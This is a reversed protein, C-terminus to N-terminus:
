HLARATAVERWDLRGDLIDLLVWAANVRSADSQADDRIVATLMECIESRDAM